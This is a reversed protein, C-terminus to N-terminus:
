PLLEADYWAFAGSPAHTWRVLLQGPQDDSGFADYLFDGTKWSRLGVVRTTPAARRTHRLGLLEFTERFVPATHALGRAPINESDRRFLDPAPDSRKM